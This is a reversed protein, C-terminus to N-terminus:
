GEELYYTERERVTLARGGLLKKALRIQEELGEPVTETEQRFEYVINGCLVAESGRLGSVPDFAGFPEPDTANGGSIEAYLKGSEMDWIMPTKRKSCLLKRDASCEYSYQFDAGVEVTREGTDLDYVAKLGNNSDLHHM